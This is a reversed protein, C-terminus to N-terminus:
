REIGVVKELAGMDGSRTPESDSVGDRMRTMGAAESLVKLTVESVPPEYVLDTRYALANFIEQLMEQSLRLRPDEALNRVDSALANIYDVAALLAHGDELYHGDIMYDNQAIRVLADQYSESM